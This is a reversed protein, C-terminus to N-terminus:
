GKMLLYAGALAAIGLILGNGSEPLEEQKKAPPPSSKSKSGPVDGISERRSISNYTGELIKVITPPVPLPAGLFEMGVLTQAGIYKELIGAFVGRRAAESPLAKLAEKVRYITECVSWARNM